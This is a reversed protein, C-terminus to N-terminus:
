YVYGLLRGGTRKKEAEKQDMIGKSTTLILIGINQAPLYRKEFKIFDARKVSFSPKIVNCNNIRGVLKVKVKGGRGDEIVETNGIYKNGHIVKLVSQILKSNPVVCEKRGIAETNKLTSFVDALPDHRM